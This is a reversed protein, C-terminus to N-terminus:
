QNQKDLFARNVAGGVKRLIDNATDVPHTLAQDVGRSVEGGINRIARGAKPLDKVFREGAGPPKPIAAQMKANADNMLQQRVHVYANKPLLISDGSKFAIRVANPNKESAYATWPATISVNKPNKPDVEIKADLLRTAYSVADDTDLDQNLAKVGFAINPVARQTTPSFAAYPSTKDKAVDDLSAKIDATLSASDQPSMKVPASAQDRTQRAYGVDERYAAQATKNDDQYQKDAAGSKAKFEAEANANMVSITRLYNTRETPTMQALMKQDPEVRKLQGVDQRTPAQFTPRDIRDEDLPAQLDLAAAAPQPQQTPVTQGAGTPVAGQRQQRQPAHQAYFNQIQQVAQGSTAHPSIGNQQLHAAPDRVGIQALVQVAPTDPAARMLAMGGAAGQQHMVALEGMTPARGAQQQFQQENHVTLQQFVQTNAKPDLRMDQGNVIPSKGTVTQWEPTSIQFLGVSDGNVAHPNNSSEGAAMMQTYVQPDFQGEPQTPQPQDQPTQGQEPQYDPASQGGSVPVAQAPQNGQQTVPATDGPKDGQLAAMAQTYAASPAPTAGKARGAANMIAQWSQTKNALGIAAQYLQQPSLTHEAIPKGTTVDTETVNVSKDPNVKINTAERGDPINAYGAQLSKAAGSVDGKQLKALADEGHKSAEFTSYQIIEAAFNNARVPDGKAMYHEYAKTMARLIMQSHTLEGNPDVTKALQQMIAPTPRGVGSMAAKQNAAMEQPDTVAQAKPDLKFNSTLAMIGGHLAQSLTHQDGVDPAGADDGMAPQSDQQPADDTPLASAQQTPAQPAAEGEPPADSDGDVPLAAAAAPPPTPPDDDQDSDDEPVAGGESFARVLGGRSYGGTNDTDDTPSQSASYADLPVASAQENAATPSAGIAAPKAPTNADGTLGLWKGLNYLMGHPANSDVKASSGDGDVDGMTNDPDSASGAGSANKREYYDSMADDYRARSQDDKMKHVGQFASLFDKVESGFAM